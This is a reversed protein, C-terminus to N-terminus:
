GFEALEDMGGNTAAVGGSSSQKRRKAKPQGQTDWLRQFKERSAEAMRKGRQKIPVKAAASSIDADGRQHYQQVTNFLRVVGQTATKRLSLEFAKKTIDPLTHGQDKLAKRQLALIRKEKLEERKEKLKQVVQTDCLVPPAAQDLERSMISVFASCFGKWGGELAPALSEGVGAAAAEMTEGGGRSAGRRGPAM